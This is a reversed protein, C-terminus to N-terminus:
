PNVAAGKLGPADSFIFRVSDVDGEADRHVDARVQYTGPPADVHFTLSTAPGADFGRVATELEGDFVVERQSPGPDGSWVELDVNGYDPCRTSVLLGGPGGLVRPMAMPPVPPPPIRANGVEILQVHCGDPLLNAHYLRRAM